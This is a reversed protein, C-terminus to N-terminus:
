ITKFFILKRKNNLNNIKKILKKEKKKLFSFIVLQQSITANWEFKKYTFSKLFKKYNKRVNKRM